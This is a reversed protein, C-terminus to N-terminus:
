LFHSVQYSKAEKILDANRWNDAVDVLETAEMLGSFETELKLFLGNFAMLLMQGPSLDTPESEPIKLLDNFQTQLKHVM